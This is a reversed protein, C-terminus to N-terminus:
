IKITISNIKQSAMILKEFIVWRNYPLVRYGDPILMSTKTIINQRYRRYDTLDNVNLDKPAVEDISDILYDMEKITLEAEFHLAQAFEKMVNSVQVTTM